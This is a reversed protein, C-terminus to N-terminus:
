GSPYASGAFELPLTLEFSTGRADTKSLRLKGGHDEAITRCISLGLGTGNPKTSYFPEFIQNQRDPAIGPGTDQVYVAVGLNGDAGTVVRLRKKDPPVAHMAEIANRILNLIAQQIQVHGARIEPLNEQYEAAAVVGEARLEDRILALAERVVDNIQVTAHEIQTTKYLDRIAAIVENARLSADIMSQFCGQAKELEPPTRKLWNLGASGRTAIGTLPQRLEHAM